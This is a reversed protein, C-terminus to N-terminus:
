KDWESKLDDIWASTKRITRKIEENPTEAVDAGLLSKVIWIVLGIAALSLLIIGRVVGWPGGLNFARNAFVLLLVTVSLSICAYLIVFWAAKELM